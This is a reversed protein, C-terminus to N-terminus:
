KVLSLISQLPITLINRCITILFNTEQSMSAMIRQSPRFVTMQLIYHRKKSGPQSSSLLSTKLSKPWLTEASSKQLWIFPIAARESMVKETGIRKSAETSVLWFCTTGFILNANITYSLTKFTRNFLLHVLKSNTTGDKKLGRSWKHPQFYKYEKGAAVTKRHSSLGYSKPNYRFFM